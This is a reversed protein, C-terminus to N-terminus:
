WRVIVAKNSIFLKTWTKFILFEIYHGKKTSDLRVRMSDSGSTYVYMTGVDSFHMQKITFVPNGQVDNEKSIITM